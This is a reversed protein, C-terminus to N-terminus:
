VEYLKEKFILLGNAFRQWDLNVFIGRRLILLQRMICESWEKKVRSEDTNNLDGERNAKWIALKSELDPAWRLAYEWQGVNMRALVHNVETM